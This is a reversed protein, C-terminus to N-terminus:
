DGGADTSADTTSADGASGDGSSADGPSGGTGGDTTGGDPANCSKPGAGNCDTQRCGLNPGGQSTLDIAVGCTGDLRCCGPFTVVSNDLPNVIKFDSCTTDAVGVEGTGYCGPAIGIFGGVTADVQSGCYDKNPGACCPMITIIGAVGYSPCSSTGCTCPATACVDGGSPTPVCDNQIAGGSGGSGSTGATGATGGSGATGATGGSGATSGGFGGLGSDAAGGSGGSGSDEDGGCAPASGIALLVMGLGFGWRTSRRQM